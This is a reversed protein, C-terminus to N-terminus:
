FDSSLCSILFWSLALSMETKLSPIELINEGNVSVPIMQSTKNHIEMSLILNVMIEKKNIRIFLDGEKLNKLIYKKVKLLKSVDLVELGIPFKNKNFDIIVSEDLPESFGYEYNKESHFFLIDNEYDYQFIMIEKNM